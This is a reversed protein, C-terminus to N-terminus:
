HCSLLYGAESEVICDEMQSRRILHRPMRKHHNFSKVTLLHSLKGCACLRFVIIGRMIIGVHHKFDIALLHKVRSGISQDVIRRSQIDTEVTSVM